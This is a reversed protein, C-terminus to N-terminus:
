CDSKLGWISSFQLCKKVGLGRAISALRESPKKTAFSLVDRTKEPPIQKRMIQGEVVNCLEMPILAGNGVEVCLVDPYRLARNYTRQFYQAVTLTGGERLTFTLSSAGVASIKKVVRPTRPRGQQLTGSTMVRIGSIFRQLALRDRDSIGVGRGAAGAIRALAQVNNDEKRLFQLCLSILSGPKYMTGTSIDINILMRGIAPRVSQFYGRWLVLGSGIDKMEQNTFFSRVNFPYKITPEMRVVVNLAKFM